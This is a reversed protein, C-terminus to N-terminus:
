RILTITGKKNLQRGDNMVAKVTYVYVGVPQNNGRFTGDWGNSINASYFLQQGWQSYLNFALTKVTQSRVYVVDNKGDGNPTFANPVFLDDFEKETEGTVPGSTEGEQCNLSGTAKVLITVSESGRLGDITHTLGSSGSSPTIYSLGNDISVKYGTAGAVSSWKFTISHQTTHDISVIPSQLVPLVTVEVPQRAASACGQKNVVELYFMTSVSVAPTTWSDGSGLPTGGEAASYWYYTFDPNPNSVTFSGSSGSCTSTKGNDDVVNASPLPSVVVQVTTVSASSCSGNGSAVYYAKNTTLNGTSYSQGVFLLNSRDPDDYWSYTIGAIPNKVMLTTGSGSCVNVTLHEVEPVLLQPLVRITVVNSILSTNCPESSVIRRFYTTAALAPPDYAPNTADAIDSFTINDLSRQWKYIYNGNGGSPGAGTIAAPDVNACLLAVDPPVIANNELASYINIKVTNSTSTTGCGDSIAIRRLYTTATIRGPTYDKSYAGDINIFTVNDSSRQWQYFFSSSGSDPTTGVLTAPNGYSCFDSILPPTILNNTVPIIPQVTVYYHSDYVPVGAIVAKRRLSFAINVASPNHLSSVLYNQETNLGPADIWTDGLYFEWLFTTSPLALPDGKIIVNAGSCVTVPRPAPDAAFLSCHLCLNFLTTLLLIKQM